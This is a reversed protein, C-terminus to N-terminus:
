LHWAQEPFEFFLGTTIDTLSRLPKLGICSPRTGVDALIEDLKDFSWSDPM